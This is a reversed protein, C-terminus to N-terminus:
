LDFGRECAGAYCWCYDGAYVWCGIEFGRIWVAFGDVQAVVEADGTRQRRGGVGVEVELGEGSVTESGEM